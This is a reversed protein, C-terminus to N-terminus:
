YKCPSDIIDGGQGSMSGKPQTNGMGGTIFDDVPSDLDNSGSGKSGIGALTDFSVKAYGQAGDVFEVGDAM